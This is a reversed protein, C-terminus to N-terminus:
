RLVATPVSLVADWAVESAFTGLAIENLGTNEVEGTSVAFLVDDNSQM